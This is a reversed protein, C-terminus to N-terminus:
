AEIYGVKAFRHLVNRRTQSCLVGEYV